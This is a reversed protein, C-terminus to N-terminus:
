AGTGRKMQYAREVQQQHWERQAKSEDRFEKTEQRFTDALGIVTESHQAVIAQVHQEHKEERRPAAIAKEHYMYWALMTLAGGTGILSQWPTPQVLDEAILSPVSLWGWFWAGAAFLLTKGM